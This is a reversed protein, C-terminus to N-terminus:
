LLTWSEWIWDYNWTCTHTKALQARIGHRRTDCDPIFRHFQVQINKIKDIYNSRLLHELVDYEAGEINLKLLDITVFGKHNFYKCADVCQIVESAGSGVFLSSGDGELFLTAESDTDAIALKEVQVKNNDKFRTTIAEYMSQMPELIYVSCGYRSYITHAFDGQYGGADVVISDQSLNYTYQVDSIQNDSVFQEYVSHDYEVYFKM